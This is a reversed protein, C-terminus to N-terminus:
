IRMIVQVLKHHVFDQKLQLKHLGGFGLVRTTIAEAPVGSAYSKTEDVTAALVSPELSVRWVNGDETKMELLVRQYSQVLVVSGDIQRARSPPELTPSIGLTDVDEALLVLDAVECGSDVLLPVEIEKENELTKTSIRVHVILKTAGIFPM